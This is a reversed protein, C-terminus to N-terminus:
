RYDKHNVALQVGEEPLLAARKKQGSGHRKM